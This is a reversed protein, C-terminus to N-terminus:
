VIQRLEDVSLYQHRYDRLVDQLFPYAVDVKLERLDHFAQRLTPEKEADLAM